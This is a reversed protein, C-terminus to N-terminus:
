YKKVQDLQQKKELLQWQSQISRRLNEILDQQREHDHQEFRSRSSFEQFSREPGSNNSLVHLLQLKEQLDQLSETLYEPHDPAAMNASSLEHNEQQGLSRLKAQQEILLRELDQSQQRLTSQTQAASPQSIQPNGGGPISGPNNLRRGNMRSNSKPVTGTSSPSSGFNGNPAPPSM